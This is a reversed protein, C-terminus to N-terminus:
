KNKDGQLQRRGEETIEWIGRSSGKKLFGKGILSNRAFQATNRWRLTNSSRLLEHDPSKLIDKMINGVRDLVLNVKAVGGLENIAQLIPRYYTDERTRRGHPLKKQKVINAVKNNVVNVNLKSNTESEERSIARGNRLSNLYRWQGTKDRYEIKRWGDFSPNENGILKAVHNAAGTPSRFKQNEFIIYGDRAEGLTEVRKYIMRLELPCPIEGGNCNVPKQGVSKKYSAVNNSNGDKTIVEWIVDEPSVNFGTARQQLEM